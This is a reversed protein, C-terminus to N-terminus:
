VDWDTPVNGWSLLFNNFAGANEIAASMPGKVFTIKGAMLLKGGESAGEAATRWTDLDANIILWLDSEDFQPLTWQILKAEHWELHTTLGKEECTFAMRNTFSKPDKFGNYVAENANVAEMAAQCWEESFLKMKDAM